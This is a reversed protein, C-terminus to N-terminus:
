LGGEPNRVASEATQVTEVVMDSKVNDFIKQVSPPASDMQKMMQFYLDFIAIGNQRLFKLLSDYVIGINTVYIVFSLARLEVYEEFSLTDSGVVIEETEIVNKGSKLFLKNVTSRLNKGKGVYIINGMHDHLYFLGVKRPTEELLRQLKPALKRQNETQVAQQIIAKNTDKHLLLKFLHVTAMADGEARHRNSVPIGLSRCLKGLKYSPLDPMLSKSLEVTCLRKRLYDYGLRKFETALIRADFVANHAVLVCGETIEVIRKAVEHFKPANKLMGQDIGTLKVVFPQIEKEPNVLSVFTDVVQHGDFRYIAIETIGEEDYAGGTTEIDLIAYMDLIIELALSLM